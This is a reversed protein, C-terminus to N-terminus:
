SINVKAEIKVRKAIDGRVIQCVGIVLPIQKPEGDENTEDGDIDVTRLTKQVVSITGDFSAGHLGEIDVDDLGIWHGSIDGMENGFFRRERCEIVQERLREDVTGM